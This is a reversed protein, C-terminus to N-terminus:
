EGAGAGIINEREQGLGQAQGADGQPQYSAAHSRDTPPVLLLAISIRNEVQCYPPVVLAGISRCTPM